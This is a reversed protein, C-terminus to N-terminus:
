AVNQSKRKITYGVIGAIIAVVLGANRYYVADGYRSFLSARQANLQSGERESKKAETFIGEDAFAGLTAGDFFARVFSGSNASLSNHQDIQSVLVAAEENLGSIQHIQYFFTVVAIAAVLYAVQYPKM